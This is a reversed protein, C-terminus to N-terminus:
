HCVAFLYLHDVIKRRKNNLNQFFEDGIRYLTSYSMEVIKEDFHLKFYVYIFNKNLIKYFREDEKKVIVVQSLKQTKKKKKCNKYLRM